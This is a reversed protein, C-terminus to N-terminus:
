KYAWKYGKATKQQNRCAHVITTYHWGVAAAADKVAQFTKITNGDEGIM